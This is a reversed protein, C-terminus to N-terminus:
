GPDIGAHSARGFFPRAVKRVESETHDKLFLIDLHADQHFLAAFIVGIEDVLKREDRPPTRVALVISVGAGDQLDARLLYARDVRGDDTFAAELRQKLVREPPGDKEGLFRPFKRHEEVM